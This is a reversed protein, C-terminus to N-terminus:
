FSAHGPSCCASPRVGGKEAAAKILTQRKEDVNEENEAPRRVEQPTRRPLRPVPEPVKVGVASDDQTGGNVPLTRGRRVFDLNALGLAELLGAM